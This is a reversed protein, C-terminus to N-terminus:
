GLRCFWFLCRATYSTIPNYVLYQVLVDCADQELWNPFLLISSLFRASVKITTNGIQLVHNATDLYGLVTLKPAYGIKVRTTRGRHLWFLILRQLLPAAVIDLEEV